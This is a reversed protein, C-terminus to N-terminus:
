LLYGRNLSRADLHGYRLAAGSHVGWPNKESGRTIRARTQHAIERNRRREGIGRQFRLEEFIVALAEAREPTRRCQEREGEPCTKEPPVDAERAAVLREVHAEGIDERQAERADRQQDEDAHQHQPRREAGVRCRLADDEGADVAEKAQNERQHRDRGRGVVVRLVEDAQTERQEDLEAEEVQARADRQGGPNDRQRRDHQQLDGIM